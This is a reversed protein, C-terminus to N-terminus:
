SEVKKKTERHYEKPTVGYRKKFLKIFYSTNDFGCAQGAETVNEGHKLLISAHFLRLDNLYQLPSTHFQKKFIRMFYGESLCISECIESVSLPRSYNDEMFKIASKIYIFEKSKGYTTNEIIYGYKRMYYLFAYINSLVLLQNPESKETEICYLIEFTRRIENYGKDTPKIINQFITQQNTLSRLTNDTFRIDKIGELLSMDFLLTTFYSAEYTDLSHVLQSNLIIIDGKNYPLIQNEVKIFGSGVAITVETEDHWHPAYLNGAGESNYRYTYFPFLTNQRASQELLEADNM